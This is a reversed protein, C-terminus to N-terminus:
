LAGRAMSMMPGVLRDFAPDGDPNESYSAHNGQLDVLWPIGLDRNVTYVLRDAWWGHSHIVDIQHFRILEGIM